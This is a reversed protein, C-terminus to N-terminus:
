PYRGFGTVCAEGKGPGCACFFGVLSGVGKADPCLQSSIVGFTGVAGECPVKGCIGGDSVDSARERIGVCGFLYLNCSSTCSFCSVHDPEFVWSRRFCGRTLVSYSSSSPLPVFYTLGRNPTTTWRVRAPADTLRRPHLLPVRTDRNFRHLISSKLYMFTQWPTVPQRWWVTAV